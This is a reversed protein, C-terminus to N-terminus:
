LTGKTSPLADGTQDRAVAHRLARGTSKFLAEIAHHDNEARLVDIHLDIRAHEAFSYWFHKVLETPLDGVTERAFGASFWLYFRGSLDVVTRALAEDMPVYAHGYRQIFVKDGLAERFAEGLTIAVDEVTHHEDVHLDGDCSIRLDFGGHKALQDLMHDFFGLGTQNDYGATEPDLNLEVRVTTESTTRVRSATRPSLSVPPQM